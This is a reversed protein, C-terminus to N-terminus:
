FYGLPDVFTGNVLVGFHLHNGTSDGTSGVGGVSDGKNVTEGVSVAITSMHAYMAQLGNGLDLIVCNGYGGNSGASIVRGNGMALLPTGGPASMDVGYHTRYDGWIPHLRTGFYDDSASPGYGPLPWQYAGGESPAFTGSGGTTSGGGVFSNSASQQAIMAQVQAEISAANSAEAAVIAQYEAVLAQNHSLLEDKQAKVQQQQTLAAEQQGKKEVTKLRDAEIQQKKEEISNKTKELALVADKDSEIIYRSMDMKTVLDSFDNATFLFELMSTNGYMYMTRVRENMANEQEVKKVEAIELEEQTKAINGELVVIEQNLGDIVGTIRSMENNIAVLQEEIGAITSQTMQVQLQAEAQKSNSEALQEQLTAASIPSMFMALTLTGALIGAVIKQKTM